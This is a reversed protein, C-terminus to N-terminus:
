PPTAAALQLDRHEQGERTAAKLLPTMVLHPLLAADAIGLLEAGSILQQQPYRCLKLRATAFEGDQLFEDPCHILVTPVTRCSAV